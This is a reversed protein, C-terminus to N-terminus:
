NRSISGISWGSVQTLRGRWTKFRLPENSGDQWLSVDGLHIHLRENRAEPGKPIEEEFTGFLEDLGKGAPENFSGVQAAVAKRWAGRSIIQGSVVAGPVTLTVSATGEEHEDDIGVVWSILASLYLDYAGIPMMEIDAADPESEIEVESM